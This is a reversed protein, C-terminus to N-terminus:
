SGEGEPVVQRFWADLKPFYRKIGFSGVVVGIHGTDQLELTVDTSGVAGALPICAPPPAIFDKSCPTVYLPVRIQKLDVREGRLMWAGALLRDEQYGYRIFEVAVKGPVPVNEELWRERALARKLEGADGSVAELAIFKEWNGMPDLLKFAPGMVDTSVLGDEDVLAEPSCVDPQCFAAFRGGERYKVPTALAVLAAVRQPRLAAFMTALTGGMCYGVLIAQQTGAHRCARDVARRLLDLVVVATDQDADEPGPVGWDVLYTPHGMAALAGVMSRDPELDLIYARNIMSPVLVVPTRRVRGDAPPKPAYFKLELKNQRFVIEFPTTGVDPRALRAHLLMGKRGRSVPDTGPVARTLALFGGDLLDNGDFM